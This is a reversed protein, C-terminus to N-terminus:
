PQNRKLPKHYRTQKNHNQIITKTTKLMLKEDNEGLKYDVPKADVQALFPHAYVALFSKLNNKKHSLLKKELSPFTNSASINNSM